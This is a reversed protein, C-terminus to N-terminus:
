SKAIKIIGAFLLILILAGAGGIIYYPVESKEESFSRAAELNQQSADVMSTDPEETVAM